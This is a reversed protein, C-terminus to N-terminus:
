ETFGYKKLKQLNLGAIFKNRNTLPKRGESLELMFKYEFDKLKRNKKDWKVINIIQELTIECNRNEKSQRDKELLEDVNDFLGPAKEIVLDLITIGTQREYDSIRSNNRVRGALNFAVSKKQESLEGTERGWKEILHWIQSPISKIKALEEQIQVRMIEEDTIRKRFSSNNTNEFDNKIRSFDINFEQAKLDSWCDEKKAWEGYLAGHNKEASKKIASEVQVMLDYLLIKLDESLGQNKWIKYLDIKCDTIYTLYSISYPVTIYRLDGISNPKIGYIKESTRFLIVKSIIDEFYINDLHKVINFNIFQVYNKQNGRVVIHPGIVTKVTM